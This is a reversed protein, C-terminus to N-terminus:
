KKIPKIRTTAQNGDVKIPQDFEGIDSVMKYVDNLLDVGINKHANERGRFRLSVKVKMGKELFKRMHKVKTKIDHEGTAVHLKVEKTINKKGAKKKKQKIYEEKGSDMIKCITKGNNESVPVLDLNKEKALYQAKKRSTDGLNEGTETILIITETIRIEKNKSSRM